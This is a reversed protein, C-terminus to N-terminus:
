ILRCFPPPAQEKCVDPRVHATKWYNMLGLKATLAPFAPDSLAGRMSPYWFLSPGPYEDQALRAAIEFAEHHAGLDSLLRAVM